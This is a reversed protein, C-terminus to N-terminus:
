ELISNSFENRLDPDLTLGFNMMKKLETFFAYRFRGNKMRKGKELTNRLEINFGDLLFILDKLLPMHEIDKEYAPVNLFDACTSYMELEAGFIEEPKM